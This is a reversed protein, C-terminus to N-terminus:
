EELGKFEIRLSLQRSVSKSEKREDRSGEVYPLGPVRVQHVLWKMPKVLDEELVWGEIKRLKVQM